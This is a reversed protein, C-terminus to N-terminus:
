CKDLVKQFKQARAGLPLAPKRGGEKKIVLILVTMWTNVMCMIIKM